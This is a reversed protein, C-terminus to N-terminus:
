AMVGQVPTTAKAQAQREYGTRGYERKCTRCARKNGQRIMTNEPTFEHGRKCHTKRANAAAITNGRLLNERCTVPELHYPNVCWRHRCTHDLERGAPIAGIVLTYTLRHVRWMRGNYKYTAYGDDSHHGQYKWCGLTPEGMAPKIVRQWFQCEAEHQTRKHRM